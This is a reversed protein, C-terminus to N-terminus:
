SNNNLNALKQKIERKIISGMLTDYNKENKLKTKDFYVNLYSKCIKYFVKKKDDFGKLTNFAVLGNFERFKKSEILKQCINFFDELNYATTQPNSYIQIPHISLDKDWIFDVSPKKVFGAEISSGGSIPFSNIYFDIMKFMRFINKLPGVYIMRKKLDKNKNLFDELINKCRPTGIFIHIYNKNKRLLSGIIKLFFLNNGILCKELNTTASIISKKPLKFRQRKYPKAKELFSKDYNPLGTILYKKPKTEYKFIQEHCLFFSLDGVNPFPSFAHHDQTLVGHVLVDSKKVSSIVFPHHTSFCFDIKNKIFWNNVINSKEIQKKKNISKLLYNKKFNKVAYVYGGSNRFKKVDEQLELVKTIIKKNNIILKKDIFRKLVSAGGTDNSNVIVVGLYFVKKESTKKLNKSKFKFFNDFLKSVKIDDYVRISLNRFKNIFSYYDEISQLFKEEDKKKHYRKILNRYELIKKKLLDQM